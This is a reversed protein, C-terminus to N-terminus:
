AGFERPGGGVMWPTGFRDTCMGFRDSWFTEQMPMTVTGGESLAAFIREAEAAEHLGLSVSFGQMPTRHEPPADSGMLLQEGISLSAHLIADRRQPSVQDAMPSGEFPMLRLEGGLLQHYFTFAERCQGDFTLYADLRM